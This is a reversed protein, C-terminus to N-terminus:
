SEKIRAKGRDQNARTRPVNPTAARSRSTRRAEPPPPILLDAQVSSTPSQIDASGTGTGRGSPPASPLNPFTSETALRGLRPKPMSRLNSESVNYDDFDTRALKRKKDELEKDEVSDNGSDKGTKPGALSGYPKKPPGRNVAGPKLQQAPTGRRTSPQGAGTDDAAGIEINDDESSQISSLSSLSSASHSRKARKPAPEELKESEKDAMKGNVHSQADGGHAENVEVPTSEKRAVSQRTRRVPSKALPKTKPAPTHSGAISPTKSKTASSPTKSLKRQEKNRKKAMKILDQFINAEEPTQRQHLVAILLRSIKSDTLSDEYLLRIANGLNENDLDRARQVAADVIVRLRDPEFEEPKTPTSQPPAAKSQQPQDMTAPPQSIPQQDETKEIGNQQRTNKNDAKDTNSKRASNNKESAKPTDKGGLIDDNRAFYSRRSPDYQKVRLKLKSQQPTTRFQSMQERMGPRAVGKSDKLAPMPQNLPPASPLTPNEPRNPHLSPDLLSNPLNAPPLDAPSANRPSKRLSAMHNMHHLFSTQSRVSAKERALVQLFNVRTSRSHVLDLCMSYWGSKSFVVEM